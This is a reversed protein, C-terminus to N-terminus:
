KLQWHRLLKEKNAIVIIVYEKFLLFNYNIRRFTVMFILADAERVVSIKNMVNGYIKVVEVNQNWGYKMMLELTLDKQQLRWSAFIVILM